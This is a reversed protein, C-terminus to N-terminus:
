RLLRSGTVLDPGSSESKLSVTLAPYPLEPDPSWSVESVSRMRSLLDDLSTPRILDILLSVHETAGTQLLVRLQPQDRIEGLFAMTQEILSQGEIKIMVRGQYVRAVVGGNADEDNRVATPGRSEGQVLQLISNSLSRGDVHGKVMYAQAGSRLSDTAITGDELGTLV